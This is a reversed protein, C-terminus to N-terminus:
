DRLLLPVRRHIIWEDGDRVLHFMTDGGGGRGFKVAVYLFASGDFSRIPETTEFRLYSTALVGTRPQCVIRKGSDGLRQVDFSRDHISECFEGLDLQLRDKLLRSALSDGCVPVDCRSLTRGSAVVDTVHFQSCVYSLAVQLM